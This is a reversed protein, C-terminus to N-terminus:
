AVIRGAVYIVYYDSISTMQVSLDPSTLLRQSQLNLTVVKEDVGILGMSFLTSSEKICELSPAHIVTTVVKENVNILSDPFM